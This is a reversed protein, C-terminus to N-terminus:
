INNILSKAILDKQKQKLQADFDSKGKLTKQMDKVTKRSSFDADSEPLRNKMSNHEHVNYDTENQISDKMNNQHAGV